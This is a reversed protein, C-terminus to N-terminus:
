LAGWAALGDVAHLERVLVEGQLVGPRADQGTRGGRPAAGGWCGKSLTGVGERGVTALAPGPVLPEWNKRQVAAVAHSSPLCTRAGARERARRRETRM